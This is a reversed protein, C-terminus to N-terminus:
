WTLAAADRSGRQRERATDGSQLKTCLFIHLNLEACGDPRGAPHTPALNAPGLQNRARGRFRRNENWVAMLVIVKVYIQQESRSTMLELAQLEPHGRLCKDCTILVPPPCDDAAM